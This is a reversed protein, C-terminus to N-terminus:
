IAFGDFLLIVLMLLCIGSLGFSFLPLPSGDIKRRGMKSFVSFSALAFTLILVALFAVKNQGAHEVRSGAPGVLPLIMCLFFFSLGSAVAFGTGVAPKFLVDNEFKQDQEMLVIELPQFEFHRFKYTSDGITPLLFFICGEASKNGRGGM